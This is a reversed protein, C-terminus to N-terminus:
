FPIGEEDPPLSAPNAGDAAGEAGPSPALQRIRLEATDLSQQCQQGLKVGREFLQLSRELTLDGSEMQQVIRELEDLDAEFRGVPDQQPASPSAAKTSTRPTPSSSRSTM